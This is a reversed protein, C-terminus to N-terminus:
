STADLPNLAIRDWGTAQNLALQKYYTGDSEAYGASYINSHAIDEARVPTYYIATGLFNEAQAHHWRVLRNGVVDALARAPGAVPDPDLGVLNGCMTVVDLLSPDGPAKPLNRGKRAGELAASCAARRQPNQRAEDLADALAKLPEAVADAAGLDILAIPVDALVGRHVPDDLFDGLQLALNRAVDGSDTSPSLAAMFGKWPWIGAIPAEAQSAIMFEAVHRLQYATELTNMYCDRFLVITAQHGTAEISTALDNLRLTNAAREKAESDYFLGMPGSAHGHFFVLHRDAPCEQHGYRLFDELVKAGAANLDDKDFQTKLTSQELGGLIKRWLPQDEAPVDEFGGRTKPRATITGRSVGRTNKFDVQAAISVQGYDAALCIAKLEEKVQADITQGTSKDDAVLYALVAWAKPKVAVPDM